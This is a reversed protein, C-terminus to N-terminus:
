NKRYRHKARVPRQKVISMTKAPADFYRKDREKIENREESSMTEIICDDYICNFCDHNCRAM